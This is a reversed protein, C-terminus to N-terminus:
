HQRLKLLERRQQVVFFRVRHRRERLQWAFRFENRDERGSQADKPTGLSVVSLMRFACSDRNQCAGANSSLASSALRVKKGEKVLEFAESMNKYIHTAMLDRDSYDLKYTSLGALAERVPTMGFGVSAAQRVLSDVVAQGFREEPVEYDERVNLTTYIESALETMQDRTVMTTGAPGFLRDDLSLQMIQEGSVQMVNQKRLIGSVDM